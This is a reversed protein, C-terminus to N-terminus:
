AGGLHRRYAELTLQAIEPWDTARGGATAREALREALGPETLVEILGRALDGPDDPAVVIGSGDAVLEPLGGARTVVMPRGYVKAQSGVGSQSAQTYPLVVCRARGFLAPVDGEPVHEHRLEVRPDGLLPHDPLDGAGAVVVRADPVASWIAPLADLLVHLGKYALLRGFFLMVPDRPVPTTASTGTGHPVVEIPATTDFARRLETRDIESHVFILGAHRLLARESMRRRLHPVPDGPHPTPDHFTVAYRRPRVGAALLLRPDDLVSEQVHVVDPRLRAVDRTLCALARLARPDRVRGPLMRHRGDADGFIGAVFSRVVEREDPGPESPLEHTHDRTILTVDAGRHALGSALGATYKVFWDCALVVRLREMGTTGDL